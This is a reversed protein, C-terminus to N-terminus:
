DSINSYVATETIVYDLPIDYDSVPFTDVYLEEPIVGAKVGSYDKMLRDYFGGGYGLRYFNKDIMLAPTFIIDIQSLSVPSTKPESIGWKSTVLEDGAKYPCIEIDDGNVRPLYFNKDQTVLSLLNIEDSLPYFIMVNRASEFWSQTKINSVIKESINPIDLTKRVSKAKERFLIKNNM